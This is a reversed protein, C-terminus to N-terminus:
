EEELSMLFDRAVECDELESGEYDKHYYEAMKEAAELKSILWLSDPSSARIKIKELKKSM